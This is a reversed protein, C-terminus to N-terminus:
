SLIVKEQFKKRGKKLATENIEILKYDVGEKWTLKTAYDLLRKRQAPMAELQSIDSLRAILYNM